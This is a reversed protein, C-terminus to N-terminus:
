SMLEKLHLQLRQAAVMKQAFVKLYTKRGTLYRGTWTESGDAHTTHVNFVWFRRLYDSQEIANATTQNVVASSHRLLAAQSDIDHPRSDLV